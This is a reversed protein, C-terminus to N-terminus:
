GKGDSVEPSSVYQQPIKDVDRVGVLLRRDITDGRRVVTLTGRPEIIAVAVEDLHRVGAARLRTLLDGKGLHRGRKDPEVFRGEVIAVRAQSRRRGAGARLRGLLGELTLLTLISIIAGSMVPAEGLIARATISGLLTLLALSFTSTSSSLRPGWQALVIAYFVYLVCSAIVVALALAPTITLGLHTWLEGM